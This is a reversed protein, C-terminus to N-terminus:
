GMRLKTKKKLNLSKLSLHLAFFRSPTSNPSIPEGNSFSYNDDIFDSPIEIDLSRIQTLKTLFVVGYMSLRVSMNLRLSPSLTLDYLYQFPKVVLTKILFKSFKGLLGNGQQPNEESKSPSIPLFNWIQTKISLTQVLPVLSSFRKSVLFCRCLWKVDSLKDFINIVVDDPLRHFDNEEEQGEGIGGDVYKM